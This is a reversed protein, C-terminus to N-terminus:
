ADYTTRIWASNQYRMLWTLAAAAVVVGVVLAAILSHGSVVAAFLGGASGSLVATIVAVMGAATVFQQWLRIGLGPAPLPEALSPLYGAVEPAHDFYYDRVHAIRRAYGLDEIGSQLVRHFTALGV